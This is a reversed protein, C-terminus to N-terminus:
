RRGRSKGSHRRAARPLAAGGPSNGFSRPAARRELAERKRAREKREYERQGFRKSCIDSCTNKDIRTRAYIQQCHRCFDFQKQSLAQALLVYLLGLVDHCPRSWRFVGAREYTFTEPQVREALIEAVIRGCQALALPDIKEADGSFASKALDADSLPVRDAPFLGAVNPEAAASVAFSERAKPLTSILKQLLKADVREQCNAVAFGLTLVALFRQQEIWFTRLPLTWTIEDVARRRAGKGAAVLRRGLVVQFGTGSVVERFGVAEVGPVLAGRALPRSQLRHRNEWMLPGFERTFGIAVRSQEAVTAPLQDLEALKAFRLLPGIMVAVPGQKLPRRGDTAAAASASQYEDYMRHQKPWGERDCRITGVLTRNHVRVNKVDPVSFQSSTDM